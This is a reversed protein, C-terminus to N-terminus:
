NIRLIRTSYKQTGTTLSILYLGPPLRNGSNDRGDWNILQQGSCQKGNFLNRINRGYIDNVNIQIYDGASITYTINVKDIFPNPYTMIFNEKETNEDIGGMCMETKSHFIQWHDNRYEEWILYVYFCNPGGSEGLYFDPNRNETGSRSFNSYIPDWNYPDENMFIEDNGNEQFPFSLYLDYFPLHNYDISIVYTCVGPDFPMDRVLGISGGYFPPYSAAVKILYVGSSDESWALYQTMVKDLSLNYCNGENFFLVPESWNGSPYETASYYIFSGNEDERIFYIPSEGVIVINSCNGTDLVEPESFSFIGGNVELNCTMLEGDQTWAMVNRITKDSSSKFPWNENGVSFDTEDSEGDAFPFPGAFQGDVSYKLYYIDQNGNQDSEYFVYFLTDANDIDLIKPNRFHVGPASVVALPEDPSLLNRYYIATSNTDESEEWVMNMYVQSNNAYLLKLYPNTHDAVSDTIPVPDSWDWFAQGNSEPINLFFIFFIGLQFIFFPQRTKM